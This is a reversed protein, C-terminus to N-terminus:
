IFLGPHKCGFLIVHHAVKPDAVTEFGSVYLPTSSNVRTATCLYTEPETPKADPMSVSLAAGSCLRAAASLVVAAALLYM